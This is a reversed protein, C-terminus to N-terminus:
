PQLATITPSVSNPSLGGIAGIAIVYGVGGGGGGGAGSAIPAGSGSTGSRYAGAGGDGGAGGPSKGGMAATTVGTSPDPSVGSGMSTNGAAGGGGNAIVISDLLISPADLGILGGSGGGGAGVIGAQSPAGAGSANVVGDLTIQTQSILYVAGGGGGRDAAVTGATGNGGDQGNCGGRPYTPVSPPTSDPFGGAQVTNTGSAGGGGGVSGFSGGAGGGAFGIVARPVIGTGCMANAAAPTGLGPNGSVDISGFSGITIDGHALLLLPYAGEARLAGSITITEGTIVCVQQTSNSITYLTCQANTSSTTITLTDFSPTAASPAPCIQFQHGFCNDSTTADSSLVIGDDATVDRGVASADIPLDCSGDMNSCVGDDRCMLGSPCPSEANKDCTVSCARESAPRYCGVLLVAITWTM